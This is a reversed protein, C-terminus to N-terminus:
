LKGFVGTKLELKIKESTEIGVGVLIMLSTTAIGNFGVKSFIVTPVLAIIALYCSGAFTLDKNTKDIFKQTPLGPRVGPIVGGNNQINNAIDRPNFILANYFYSFLFILGAMVIANLISGRQFLHMIKAGIDGKIFSALIALMQAFSSAFIIPMVGSMNLKIPFYGTTGGFSTSGRASAKAYKIRIRRESREFVVIAYTVVILIVICLCLGAYSISGSIIQEKTIMISRPISSIINVLILFSVGNGIGKKTITEGIWVAIGTGIAHIVAIILYVYWSDNNLVSYMRQMTITTGLSFIFSSLIGLTITIKKIVRDGGPSNAIESFKKVGYTLLQVIISASIYSSIGTAMLGLNSLAGGSLLNIYSIIGNDAVSKLIEKNVFPVPVFALIRFVAIFFLTFVVKHQLEKNQIFKSLM